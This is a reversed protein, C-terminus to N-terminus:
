ETKPKTFPEFSVSAKGGEQWILYCARVVEGALTLQLTFADPLDFPYALDLRAGTMSMDHVQCRYFQQDDIKVFGPHKLAKLQPMRAMDFGAYDLLASTIAACCSCPYLVAVLEM